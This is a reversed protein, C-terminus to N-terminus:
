SVSLACSCRGTRAGYCTMSSSRRARNLKWTEADWSVLMVGPRACAMGGDRAWGGLQTNTRRTHHREKDPASSAQPEGTPWGRAFRYSTRVLRLVIDREHDGRPAYLLPVTPPAMGTRTLFHPEAWGAHVGEAAVDLPLTAHLSFDGDAHM